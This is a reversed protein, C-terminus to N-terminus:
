SSISRLARIINRRATSKLMADALNMGEPTVAVVRGFGAHLMDAANDVSGSVLWVPVGHRRAHELLRAPLKGMLTQRDTRGEGTIVLAADSLMADFGISRMLLEAGSERAAGFFQMFAYGLGGAAGAGPMCSCDRGMIRASEDAFRRARLDIDEVMTADAGKQPAYVCAAGLPGYLPNDVDSALVFSCDRAVTHWLDGMAALMGIGCDSVASGGLGVVFRRVGRRYADAIIEGVGWSTAQMPNRRDPEVLALGVAQATEVIATDGSVGYCATVSRMLPDHVSVSVRVGGMAGIFADLMGDGGDSMAMQRVTASCAADGHLCQLAVAKMCGEDALAEAVAGNVESSTLCGKYSDCAVIIDAM